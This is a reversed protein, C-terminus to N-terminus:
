PQHHLSNSTKNAWKRQLIRTVFACDM